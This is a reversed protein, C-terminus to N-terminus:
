LKSLNEEQLLKYKSRIKESSSYLSSWENVSIAGRLMKLENLRNKISNSNLEEKELNAYKTRIEKFERFKKAEKRMKYLNLSELKSSIKSAIKSALKKVVTDNKEFRKAALISRSNSNCVSYVSM